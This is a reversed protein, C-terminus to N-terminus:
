STSKDNDNNITLWDVKKSQTNTRGKSWQVTLYFCVSRLLFKQFRKTFIIIIFYVYCLLNKLFREDMSNKFQKSYSQYEAIVKNNVNHIVDFFVLVSDFLVYPITLLSNIVNSWSKAIRRCWFPTGKCQTFVVPCQRRIVCLTCITDQITLITFFLALM